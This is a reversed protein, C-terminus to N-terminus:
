RTLFRIESAVVALNKGYEGARVAEVATNVAQINTQSALDSVLSGLTSVNGIQSRSDYLRQNQRSIAVVAERLGLMQNLTQEVMQTGEAVLNLAQRAAAAVAEAQEATEESSIGM